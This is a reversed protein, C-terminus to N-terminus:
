EAAAELHRTPEYLWPGATLGHTGHSQIVLAIHQADTPIWVDANQGTARLLALWHDQDATCVNPPIKLERFLCCGPAGPNDNPSEPSPAWALVLDPFGAASRRSNRTHYADWDHARAADIIRQQFEDETRCGRPAAEPADLLAALTVVRRHARAPDPRSRGGPPPAQGARRPGPTLLHLAVSYDAQLGVFDHGTGGADPHMEKALRRFRAHADEPTRCDAFLDPLPVRAM